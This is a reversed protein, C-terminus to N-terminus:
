ELEKNAYELFSPNWFQDETIIEDILGQAYAWEQFDMLDPINITPNNSITVWCTERVFEEELETYKAIIEVNRDTKGENFQRVGKLYAVMFRRGMEPNKDLFSPGFWLQSYSFGPLIDNFSLYIDGTGDEIIRTVAPEIAYIIDLSGARLGEYYETDSGQNIVIDDLTLNAQKLFLELAYSIFSAPNVGFSAGKLDAPNMSPHSELFPINAMYAMFSCGSDAIEGKNAVFKINAGRAIANIIGANPSGTVVDVDGQEIAPITEASRGMPLYEVTLGQEEFFGEEEAIFFPAMSLYPQLAIKVTAPEKGASCASLLVLLTIFVAIIQYKYNRNM